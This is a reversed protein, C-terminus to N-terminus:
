SVSQNNPDFRDMEDKITQLCLLLREVSYRDHIKLHFKRQKTESNPPKFELLEIYPVHYNPDSGVYIATLGESCNVVCTAGTFKFMMM